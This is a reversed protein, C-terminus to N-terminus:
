HYDVIEIEPGQADKSWEFCIRRQQNIRISYQGKRSGKLTELRNSNLASLDALSIAAELLRMRKEAQARFSEWRAIRRGITFSETDNDRFSRIM